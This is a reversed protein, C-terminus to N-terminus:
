RQGAAPRHEDMWRVAFAVLERQRMLRSEGIGTPGIRV